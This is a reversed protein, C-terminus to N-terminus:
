YERESRRHKIAINYAKVHMLLPYGCDPCAKPAHLFERYETIIKELDLLTYERGMLQVSQGNVPRVEINQPQTQHVVVSSGNDSAPRTEGKRVRSGFAIIAARAAPWNFMSVWDPRAAFAVDWSIMKGGAKRFSPTNLIETVADFHAATYTISPMRHKPGAGSRKRLRNVASYLIQKEKIQPLLLGEWDPYDEFAKATGVKALEQLIEPYKDILAKPTLMKGSPVPAATPKEAGAPGRLAPNYVKSKAYKNFWRALTSTSNVSLKAGYEDFAAQLCEKRSGFEAQKTHIFLVIQDRQEETIKSRHLKMQDSREINKTKHQPEALAKNLIDTLSSAM